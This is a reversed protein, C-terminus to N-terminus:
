CVVFGSVLHSTMEFALPKVHEEFSYVLNQLCSNIDDVETVRILSLLDTFIQRIHAVLFEKVKEQEAQLDHLALAAEVKVPLDQDAHLLNLLLQAVHIANNTNKFKIHAFRHVMWCARGRLFPTSSSLHPIVQTTMLGEIQSKYAKKKCLNESLCGIMHLARDKCLADEKNLEQMCFAMSKDLIQTHTSDITTPHQNTNFCLYTNTQDNNNCM